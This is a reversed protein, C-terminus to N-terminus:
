SGELSIDGPIFSYSSPLFPFTCFTCFLFGSNRQKKFFFLVKKLCPRVTHAQSTQFRSHLFEYFDAQRRFAPMLSIHWWAPGPLKKHPSSDHKQLASFYKLFNSHQGCYLQPTPAGLDPLDSGPKSAVGPVSLSGQRVAHPFLLTSSPFPVESLLKSCLVRPLLCFM